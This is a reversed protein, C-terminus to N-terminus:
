ITQPGNKTSFSSTVRSLYSLQGTSRRAQFLPTRIVTVKVITTRMNHACVCVCLVTCASGHLTGFLRYGGEDSIPEHHLVDMVIM